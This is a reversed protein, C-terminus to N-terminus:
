VDLNKVFRGREEIFTRRGSVDEGMLSEFWMNAKLADDIKVQLFSRSEPDMATEWLQEPNMEGLGKYRQVYMHPKSIEVIGDILSLIGSGSVSRDKNTIHLTWEDFLIDLLKQTQLLQMFSDSTFFPVPVTWEEYHHMFHLVTQEDKQIFEVKYEPLKHELLEILKNINGLIEPDVDRLNRALLACVVDAIYFERSTQELASEYRSLDDLLAQWSSQTLAENKIVLTCHERAWNILFQKLAADDQLYEEQRGIKIKYLPPLAVYLHGNEVLPLMYRFFFTLLLTRIHAGDVDADTMVIIKHYRLDELSFENKIGTGIASILAKIENNSLARDLRAKEVNLIKGRLPLIAQTFRDRASKASGGASDGEVIFLETKTPDEISCDALKGPLITSELATKRRTLERAKKQQKVLVCRM